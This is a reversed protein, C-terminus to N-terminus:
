GLIDRSLEPGLLDAIRVPKGTDISERMAIGILVALAGDALPALRGLRDDPDPGVLLEDRMVSDAGNHTGKLTMPQVTHTAGFLEMVTIARNRIGAPPQVGERFELSETELRGNLGNIGLRYGEYPLSANLSYNLIAGGDFKVVASYHDEIDIESDYICRRSELNAYHSLTQVGSVHDDDHGQSVGGRWEDRHWRMYYACNRRDACTPCFRGDKKAPNRPGEAGYYARGGYAFVEVPKQDLWWRILDFHHSCKHTCLGGSQDRRRNWRMFYSSGHYTDLYYQMDLTVVRGVRNEQLLAKVQSSHPMYRYNFTVTVRGKSKKEAMLIARVKEADTTLPKECLVDLDRALAPIVYTHHTSDVSTVIVVDPKVTDLMHEYQDPLFTPIKTGKAQNMLDMREQSIDVYAVIEAISKYPDLFADVFLRLARHSMGVIAYRKKMTKM